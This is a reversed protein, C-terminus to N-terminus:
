DEKKQKFAKIIQEAKSNGIITSLKEFSAEKIKKVSKFHALLQDITKEGIGEIGELESTFSNKSRIQRHFTIAFRHAEDRLRQLLKLSESKKSIHVPYPDEPFYIEELRKAIGIIPINGYLNLKNLAKVAASLQGKGGDIVILNPLEQQEEVLRKYRRGVIETMSAFDDPGIVTKVHYHRYESKKPRGNKFHVMSATPNTGQMNSNDFCEIKIPLEKLRLDSQLQKLVRLEKIKSSENQNLKEKKFFLANKLSMEVLKKKDGIQPKIFHFTEPPNTIDINTLIENTNSEYIKRLEILALLLLEQDTEDLKKKLEITKTVNISGNKIRMYNVFAYKDESIISCVDIDTLKANVVLSKSHFKELLELKEKYSQAKEFNLQEAAKQMNEKFHQKPINLNGKLIEAAQDIDNQYEAHKQLGECPGKCNGIHYELCVKFKGAKINQDSLNLKCTRITYLKRILELVNNMARVSAYPGFYTGNRAIRRRTSIIRPFPENTICLYPFSKDDKLLINYKPQLEKILSNELLLADFESNVIAIEIKEIERVLRITKRNHNASKNFYSTVRNKLNKAKGVYIIVGSSNHFKYVGPLQPLDNIDQPKFFVADYM